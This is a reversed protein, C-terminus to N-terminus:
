EPPPADAEASIEEKRKKSRRARFLFAIGALGLLASGAYLGGDGVARIALEAQAIRARKKEDTVLAHMADSDFNEEADAALQEYTQATDSYGTALDLVLTTPLPEYARYFGLREGVTPSALAKVVGAVALSIAALILLVRM